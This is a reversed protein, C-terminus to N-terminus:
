NKYISVHNRIIGMIVLVQYSPTEFTTTYLRPTTKFTGDLFLRTIESCDRTKLFDSDYLIVHEEELSDVILKATVKGSRHELLKKFEECETQIQFDKFSVNESPLFKKAWRKM